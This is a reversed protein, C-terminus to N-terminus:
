TKSHWRSLYRDKVKYPSDCDTSTNLHSVSNVKKMHVVTQREIVMFAAFTSSSSFLDGQEAVKLVSLCYKCHSTLMWVSYNLGHM